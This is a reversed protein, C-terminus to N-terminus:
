GKRGVFVLDVERGIAQQQRIFEEARRILNSNFSGCLGKDSTFIVLMVRPVDAAVHRLFPHDFSGGSTVEGLRQMVRRLTDSYPRSAQTRGESKRLRAAAVMKMAKTIQQTNKVSKIRRRIEKGGKAM